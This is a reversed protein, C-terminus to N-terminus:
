PGLSAAGGGCPGGNPECAEGCPGGNPECAEGFYSVVDTIHSEAALADALQRGAQVVAPDDVTGNKATVLLVLNTQGGFRSDILQEAQTSPAQPDNFGGNRLQGFAGVGLVGAGVIVLLSLTLLLKARRAVFEGYRHLM